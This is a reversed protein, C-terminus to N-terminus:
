IKIDIGIYEFDFIFGLKEALALSGKHAADWSPLKSRKLTELIFASSTCLALGRRRYEPKTAVGIEYGGSYYAYSTTACILKNDHIIGYGLGNTLFDSDSEFGGVIFHSWNEEAAQNFMDKDFQKLLFGDPLSSTNKLLTQENFNFENKKTQYREAEKYSDSFSEKVYSQIAKSPTVVTYEGTKLSSFLESLFNRNCEGGIYIYEALVGAAVTPSIGDDCYVKGMVGEICATLTTDTIGKFLDKIITKAQQTPETM